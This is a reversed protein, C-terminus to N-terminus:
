QEELSELAYGMDEYSSWAYSQADSISANAYELRTETEELLTQTEYLTEHTEYLENECAALQGELEIQAKDFGNTGWFYWVVAFIILGIVVTM